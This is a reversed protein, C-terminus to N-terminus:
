PHLSFLLSDHYVVAGASFTALVKLEPLEDFACDELDRNLLVLDAWKGPAVTGLRDEWFSAYAADITMGRLAEYPQLAEAVRYGGAPEGSELRRFVAARYTKFPDIEEVPFDTGLPLREHLKRLSQYPYAYAEAAGLRDGAWDMDSTAHTPQVSPLISYRQMRERAAERVIQAHEIRWRRDNSEPLVKAMIRTALENASDGIAHVAMQWGGEYLKQAQNVFYATPKLQLGYNASDDAYGDILLAGRSGLAGDLYFKFGAVRLLDGDQPGVTSYYALNDPHDSLLADIRIRLLSDNQLRALLEVQSRNLGAEMVATIGYKWLSDQARLLLPRMDEAKPAPQKILEVANDILIGTLGNEDRM